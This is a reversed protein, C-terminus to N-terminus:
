LSKYNKVLFQNVIHVIRAQRDRHWERVVVGKKGAEKALCDQLRYFRQAAPRNVCGLHGCVVLKDQPGNVRTDYVGRISYAEGLRKQVGFTIVTDINEEINKLQHAFIAGASHAFVVDVHHRKCERQCVRLTKACWRDFSKTGPAGIKLIEAPDQPWIDVSHVAHNKQRLGDALVSYDSPLLCFGPILLINM